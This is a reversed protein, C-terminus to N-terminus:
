RRQRQGKRSTAPKGKCAPFRSCGMFEGYPGKRPVLTGRGCAPCLDVQQPVAGTSDTVLLQNDGMLETVFESELGPRTIIVVGRRARTLAVYFLRREEAYRYKDPAAMVLDLVPDDAIKSPFGHTGAVAKPIVVYDAELGKSGHATRFKVNLNKPVHSPMVDDADFRYRGLVDVTVKGDPGPKVEGEALSKSLTALYERLAGAASDARILRVPEGPGTQSSRVTKQIQQPNKSVFRSALDCISQPCRFTTTLKLTIGRGFWEAFNSMVSIDAGAFRNISQWDDGVALLYKGRQQLLGRILRARAHSADQFEDVMILDYPADYGGSELLHAAHVLMDEFDVYNEAALRRNWEDHIPWYIDLFLQTRHGAHRSHIGTLREAMRAPDLSSSKVHTMFGRILRVMDEHKVPPPGKVERDPNWDLAIGHAVLQEALSTLGNGQVVEGFTTEILKTGRKRHLARKWVIGAAYDGFSAPVLGNRDLAWHEHWLDAAPYYFDPRYQGHRATATKFPYPREYEYEVGNLYLWDAIMREGESRVLRGDLTGLGTQRTARDYTDAEGVEEPSERVRAFVLRYLDWKYRFEPSTDRLHDVIDSVEQYERGELWPALRPKAGTARGIVDLGFSHFTSARVGTPNIGAASLRAQIRDQLESAAAKNFAMLLIRDPSVFGRQVAYAARAVMVSTKGSGAAAVVQVRNDFCIVAHAQERSLPRREISDFFSKRSTLEQQLIGDNAHAVEAPLDRPLSELAQREEVSLAGWVKARLVRRLLQSNPHSKWLEDVVESPIWRQAARHEEITRTAEECWFHAAAVQPVLLLERCTSRSAGRLKVLPRGDLVLTRARISRRLRLRSVDSSPVEHTEGAASVRLSAADLEATWGRGSWERAM